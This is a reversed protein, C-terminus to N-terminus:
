EGETIWRKDRQETLLLFPLCVFIGVDEHLYCLNTLKIECESEATVGM